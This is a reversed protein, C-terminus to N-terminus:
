LRSGVDDVSDAVTELFSWTQVVHFTGEVTFDMHLPHLYKGGESMFQGIRHSIKKKQDYTSFLRSATSVVGLNWHDFPLDDETDPASVIAIAKRM